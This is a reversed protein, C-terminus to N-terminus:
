FRYTLGVVPGSLRSDFVYGDDSYDVDLVKYGASVSLTDTFIYNVTALASWTFDSGAGFGGIDFQGQVSLKDTLNFFARAGIVPDVWGFSEQHTASVSGILPHSATVAVENSIHWFRAGALADLSFGDADIIRYGAQLTAMFEQTDVDADIAAGAPLIPLGPIQLAPLPGAAKSDTTDVYMIDGSLVFRDYRGWVNLFGGFNLDEMVDSFSKEVHLTPARRFPSINGNLGTAWLYGTAQFAWDAGDVTAPAARVEDAGSAATASFATFVAFVSLKLM